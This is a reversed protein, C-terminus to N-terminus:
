FISFIIKFLYEKDPLVARIIPAELLIPFAVAIKNAERPVFM